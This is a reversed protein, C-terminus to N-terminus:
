LNQVARLGRFGMQVGVGFRQYFDNRFGTESRAWEARFGLVRNADLPLTYQLALISGSDHDSPAVRGEEPGPNLYTQHALAGYAQISGRGRPASLVVALRQTTYDYAPLPSDNWALGASVRAVLTGALSADVEVGTRTDERRPLLPSDARAFAHRSGLLSLRVSAPDGRWAVGAAADIGQRDLIKWDEPGYRVLDGAGRIELAWRDRLPVALQGVLGGEWRGPELYGPPPLPDSLFRGKQWSAVQWLVRGDAAGGALTARLEAALEAITSPDVRLARGGVAPEVTLQTTRGLPRAIFFSTGGRSGFGSVGNGDGHFTMAGVGLVTERTVTTFRPEGEGNPVPPLGARAAIQEQLRALSALTVPIAGEGDPDAGPQFHTLPVDAPAGPMPCSTVPCGPDPDGGGDGRAAPPMGTEDFLRLTGLFLRLEDHRRGLAGLRQREEAVAGALARLAPSARTLPDDRGPPDERHGLGTFQMELELGDIRDALHQAEALLRTRTGRDGPRVSLIEEAVAVLRTAAEHRASDLNEAGRLQIAPLTGPRVSDPPTQALAPRSPCLLLVLVLLLRDRSRLLGGSQLTM